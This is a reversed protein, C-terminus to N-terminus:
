HFFCTKRSSVVLQTVNVLSNVYSDTLNHLGYSMTNCSLRYISGPNKRKEFNTTDEFRHFCLCYLKYSHYSSLKLLTRNDNLGPLRTLSFLPAM